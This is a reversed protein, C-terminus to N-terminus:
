SKRKGKATPFIGVLFGVESRAYVSRVCKVIDKLM